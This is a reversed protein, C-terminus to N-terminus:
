SPLPGAAHDALGGPVTPTFRDDDSSLPAIELLAELRRAVAWASRLRAERTLCAVRPTVQLSAIGHLPKGEDLAGPEMSDFWAAGIRGSKMAAALSQEDFLASHGTCVVVQDPKCYPLFRDGLLGHYRSFYDLQVCLVDSREVLERLGAHAVRWQPWVSDSAHLSPDYGIIRPGFSGLLQAVQRAAPTMGVLGITADGLERGALAGDGGRVPVRRLLSLMAGIAFEAEARATAMISRVIEVNYRECAALDINESGSNVRGVACLLPAFDLTEADITTSAPVIVARVNFLSGRFERARGALEPAYRVSLRSELWAIVEADLTETVLLDM